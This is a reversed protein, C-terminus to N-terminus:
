QTLDEWMKEMCTECINIDGPQPQLKIEKCKECDVLNEQQYCQYCSEYRRKHYNQKCTNCLKMQKQTWLFACKGCFTVTGEGSRYKQDLKEQKERVRREIEENKGQLKQDRWKKYMRHYLYDDRVMIEAAQNFEFSCRNCKYVPQKTKRERINISQCDPCAKRITDAEELEFDEVEQNNILEALLEQKVELEISKYSPPKWMHVLSLKNDSGCQSCSTELFKERAKKWEKSYWVPEKKM